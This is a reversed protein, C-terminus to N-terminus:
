QIPTGTPDFPDPVHNTIPPITGLYAWIAKLDDDSLEEPSVWFRGNISVQFGAM